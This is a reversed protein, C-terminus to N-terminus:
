REPRGSLPRAPISIESGDKLAVIKFGNEEAIAPDFDVITLPREVRDGGTPVEDASVAGAIADVGAHVACCSADSAFENDEEGSPRIM